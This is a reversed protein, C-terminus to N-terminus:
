VASSQVVGFKDRRVFIFIKSELNTVRVRYAVNLSLSIQGCYPLLCLILVCYGLQLVLYLLVLM